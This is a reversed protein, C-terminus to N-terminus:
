AKNGTIAEYHHAKRWSSTSWDLSATYRDILPPKLFINKLIWLVECQLNAFHCFCHPRGHLPLFIAEPHLFLSLDLSILLKKKWPYFSHSNHSRNYFCRPVNEIQLTTREFVGLTWKTCWPLMLRQRFISPPSRPSVCTSHAWEFISNCIKWMEVMDAQIRKLTDSLAFLSLLIWLHKKRGAKLFSLLQWGRTDSNNIRRAMEVPTWIGGTLCTHKKLFNNYVSLSQEKLSRVGGPPVLWVKVFVYM